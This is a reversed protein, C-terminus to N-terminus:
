KEVGNRKLCHSYVAQNVELKNYLSSKIEACAKNAEKICVQRIRAPRIQLWYFAFIFIIIIMWLAIILFWRQLKTM